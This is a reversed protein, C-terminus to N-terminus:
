AKRITVTWTGDEQQRTHLIEHGEEVLSGPVNKIPPGDDLIIKLMEGSTMKSLAVKTYVLNM